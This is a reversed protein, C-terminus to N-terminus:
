SRRGSSRPLAVDVDRMLRAVIDQAVADATGLMLNRDGTDLSSSRSAVPSIPVVIRVLAEESHGFLAADRLLHWKVAYESAIVHGRGQYWYYAIASARGNRLIYRNVTRAVGDVRVVHTGARVVEWGAGPLCNRPSHITKGRTQRDYYSVLMTFAVAGDRRYARAVYDSMGAVRREEDSLRQHLVDYGSLGSLVGSLPAALPVASQARTYLLLGYGIALIAAPVYPRARSM